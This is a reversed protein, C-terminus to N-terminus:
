PWQNEHYVRPCMHIPIRYASKNLVELYLQIYRKTFHCKRNKLLCMVIDRLHRKILYCKRGELLFMVIELELKALSSIEGM